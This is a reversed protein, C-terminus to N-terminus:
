LPGSHNINKVDLQIKYSRKHENVIKSPNTEDVYLKIRNMFDSHKYRYDIKKKTKKVM